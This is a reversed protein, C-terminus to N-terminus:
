PVFKNLICKGDWELNNEANFILEFTAYFEYFKVKM